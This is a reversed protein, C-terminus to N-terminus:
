KGKIFKNNTRETHGCKRPCLVVVEFAMPGPHSQHNHGDSMGAESKLKGLALSPEKM